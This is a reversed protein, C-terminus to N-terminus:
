SAPKSAASLQEDLKALYKAPDANFKDKCPPCCFYVRRGKYDVFVTPDIPEGLVPCTKQAIAPKSGTPAAAGAAPQPQPKHESHGSAPKPAVETRSPDGAPKAPGPSQGSERDCAAGLLLLGVTLLVGLVLLSASKM